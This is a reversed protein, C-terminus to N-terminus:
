HNINTKAININKEITNKLYDLSINHLDGYLCFIRNTTKLLQTLVECIIQKNNLTKINFHSLKGEM